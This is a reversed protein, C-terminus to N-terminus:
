IFFFFTVLLVLAPPNSSGLSEFDSQIAHSSWFSLFSLFSIFSLHYIYLYSISFIYYTPLLKVIVNRYM